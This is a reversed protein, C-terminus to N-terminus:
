FIINVAAALSGDQLIRVTCHVHVQKLVCWVISKELGFLIVSLVHLFHVETKLNLPLKNRLNVDSNEM